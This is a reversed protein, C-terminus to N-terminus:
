AAKRRAANAKEPPQVYGRERSNVWDILEDEYWGISNKALIIRKPFNGRSELRDITSTSLSTIAIVAPRRIIKRISM